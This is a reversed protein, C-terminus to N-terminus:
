PPAILAALEAPKSLSVMHSAGPIVHMIAHPIRSAIDNRMLDPPCSVDIEGAIVKTPVSILPLKDYVDMGAMAEWSAEWQASSQQLISQRAYQVTSGNAALMESTFWRTMTPVVQAPMGDRRGSLGRLRFGAQPRSVTAVLYLSAVRQPHALAFTQAIVGGMSLGVIHARPIQLTDLLVRLDEAFRQMSVPGVAGSASGHGRVDYAVIRYKLRLAPIMEAWMQQDVGLAHILVYPIGPGGTDQVRTAHDGLVVQKISEGPLAESTALTPPSTLAASLWLAALKKSTM